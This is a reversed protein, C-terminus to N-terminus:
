WEMWKTQAYSCNPDLFTCQFILSWLVLVCQFILQRSKTLIIFTHSVQKMRPFLSIIWFLINCLHKQIVITIKEWGPSIKVFMTPKPFYCLSHRLQSLLILLRHFFHFYSIVNMSFVLIYGYIWRPTTFFLLSKMSKIFSLPSLISFATFISHLECVKWHM